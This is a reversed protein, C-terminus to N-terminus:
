SLVEKCMDVRNERAMVHLISDGFKDQHEIVIRKDFCLLKFIPLNGMEVATFIPTAALKNPLQPNAGSLLLYQVM